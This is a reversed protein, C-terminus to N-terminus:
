HTNIAELKASSLLSIPQKEKQTGAPVSNITSLSSSYKGSSIVLSLLSM